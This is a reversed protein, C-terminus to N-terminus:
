SGTQLLTNDLPGNNYLRFIHPGLIGIKWLIIGLTIQPMENIILPQTTMSGFYEEYPGFNVVKSFQPVMQTVKKLSIVLPWEQLKKFSSSEM